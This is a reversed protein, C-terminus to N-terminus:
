LDCRMAYLATTTPSRSGCFLLANKCCYNNIPVYSYALNPTRSDITKNIRQIPNSQIRNSTHLITNYKWDPALSKSNYTVRKQWDHIHQFKFNVSTTLVGTGYNLIYIFLNYLNGHNVTQNPNTKWPVPLCASLYVPPCNSATWCTSITEGGGWTHASRFM